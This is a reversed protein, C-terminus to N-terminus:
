EAERAERVDPSDIGYVRRRIEDAAEQREEPTMRIHQLIDWEEAEQFSKSRHCVRIMVTRGM